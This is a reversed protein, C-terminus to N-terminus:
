AVLCYTEQVVNSDAVRYGMWWYGGEFFSPGRCDQIHFTQRSDDYGCVFVCHGNPGRPVEPDLWEFRSNLFKHPYGIPQQFGIIVPRDQRLQERIWVSPSLGDSSRFRQTIDRDGFARRLADEYAAPSPKTRTGPEDFPIQHLEHKCIGVKNLTKFGERLYLFGRADAGGREHRTVFYHFLPALPPWDVNFVEMATTLACSVCTPLDGQDFIRSKRLEHRSISTVISSVRAYAAAVSPTATIEPLAYGPNIPEVTM